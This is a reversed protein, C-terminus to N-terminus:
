VIHVRWFIKTIQYSERFSKYSAIQHSKSTFSSLKQQIILIYNIVVVLRIIFIQAQILLSLIEEIREPCIHNWSNYIKLVM